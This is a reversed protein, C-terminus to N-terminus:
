SEVNGTFLFKSEDLEIWAIEIANFIIFYIRCDNKKKIIELASKYLKYVNM